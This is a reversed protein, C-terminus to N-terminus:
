EEGKLIVLGDRIREDCEIEYGEFKGIIGEEEPVDVQGEDKFWPLNLLYKKCFDSFSPNCIIKPKVGYIAQFNSLEKSLESVWNTSSSINVVQLDQIKVVKLDDRLKFCEKYEKDWWGSFPCEPCDFPLNECVEPLVPCSGGNEVDLEFGFVDKFKELNTM